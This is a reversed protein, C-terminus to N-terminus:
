HKRGEQEVKSSELKLKLKARGKQKLKEVLSKKKKGGGVRWDWSLILSKIKAFNSTHGKFWIECGTRAKETKM